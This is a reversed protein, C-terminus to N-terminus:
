GHRTVMNAIQIVPDLEPKPFEVGRIKIEIDFSLVRLPAMQSWDTGPAHSILGEHSSIHIDYISSSWRCFIYRVTVELQCHSQKNSVVTYSDAPLEIWSMGVIQFIYSWYLNHQPYHKVWRRTSCSVCLLIWLVKMLWRQIPLYVRSIVNGM